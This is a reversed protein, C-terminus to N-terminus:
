KQMHKKTKKTPEHSAPDDPWPHKPYRGKMEKQVERYAGQWFAALDRTIQLPRQAPSLLELVVAVKGNAIVPSSKEGFMEQLKVALVPYQGPQYRIAYRSGTPVTYHTPLAQDLQQKKDWGLRAELAAVLDLRELAKLTKMGNMYPLLWEGAAALLAEDDMAPLDLEPLWESACRARSLVGEATKNWPLIGLGKRQVANLLAESAKAPEPEGMPQRELVLKGCCLHKEASLRGKKDDWDLWDRWVFLHPLKDQLEALQAPVASFIRSDGQRTKVIDAVVLLEEDALPEDPMMMAGQGNALQYRGDNGRSLAIRDPFGAALLPAIWEGAVKIAAKNNGLKALHQSARQLYARSRSQKGSEVLNLQFHLDPNNNGRPPEELLAVLLAATAMAKDGHQKAMLLMAAHRPEVGLKQIKSGMETLRGNEDMAGLGVLLVHAQKLAPVPPLDLWHLDAASQCGWQALEMALSTLDARLIEPQPTAPQRALMEESYLRLCIGPELRGARGARQEASSRAIRVSELRSIGTKPDWLAIRELGCDVVMRIGEITLSTEAINTALVVKRKGKPAPTIAQQQQSGTLQGYLPCVLVDDGLQGELQEALRRIEGAGPLFVLMSGSESSLLTSIERATADILHTNEALKKYRLEVPFSRGESEIYGAEPLLGTLADEDLTASMVLLKLDDRLAEQVELALALSTDAHISREHFEDFILLDTGTLEPDQQLMRTMVGETVIELKTKSSVRTEGRVRLGVTDGVQEGLQSALYRAINRAALRRPELMVIKGAVAGQQLLVLPLRTSKGAGPPAKLILQARADLQTLLAPLVDDIPLQSM